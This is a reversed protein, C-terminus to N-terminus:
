IKKIFVSCGECYHLNKIKSVKTLKVKDSIRIKRKDLLSVWKLIFPSNFPVYGEEMDRQCYPCKM